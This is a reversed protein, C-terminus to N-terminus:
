GKAVSMLQQIMALPHNRLLNSYSRQRTPDGKLVLWQGLSPAHKYSLKSIDMGFSNSFSRVYERLLRLSRSYIMRRLERGEHGKELYMRGEFLCDERAFVNIGCAM